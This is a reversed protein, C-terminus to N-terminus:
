KGLDSLGELALVWLGLLRGLRCSLGGGLSGGWLSLSGLWDLLWDDALWGRDDVAGTRLDRSGCSYPPMLITRIADCNLSVTEKDDPVSRRSIGMGLISQKIQYNIGSENQMITKTKTQAATANRSRKIGRYGSQRKASQL